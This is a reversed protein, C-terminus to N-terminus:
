KADYLWSIVEGLYTHFGHIAPNWKPGGGGNHPHYSIQRWVRGLVQIRHDQPNGKVRGILASDDPLYALDIMQGPYAGPIPVLVDTKATTSGPRTRLDHYVVAAIPKAVATVCQGSARLQELEREVRTPEYGGDVKKRVVDFVECGQLTIPEDLGIERKGEGVLWIRTERPNEPYVLRAIEEGTMIRKVGDHETFVRANVTISLVAPVTRTYFVPGEAFSVADTLAVPQDVEGETDRVLNANLPLSFLERISQGTQAPRITVEPRDDVFFALKAQAHCRQRPHVDCASLTYFVNGMALDVVEDDTLIVDEPSNHDRILLRGEPVSAQTKIVTAKVERQPVPVPIDDVLVAWKVPRTCSQGTGEKSEQEMTQNVETAM